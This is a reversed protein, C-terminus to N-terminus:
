TVRMYKINETEEKEMGESDRLLYKRPLANWIFLPRENGAVSNRYFVTDVPRIM